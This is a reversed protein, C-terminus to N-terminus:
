SRGRGVGDRWAMIALAGATPGLRRMARASELRRAPCGLSTSIFRILLVSQRTEGAAGLRRHIQDTRHPRAVRAGLAGNGTVASASSACGIDFRPAGVFPVPTDPVVVHDNDTWEDMAALGALAFCTFSSGSDGPFGGPCFYLRTPRGRPALAHIM